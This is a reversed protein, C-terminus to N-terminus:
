YWKCKEKRRRRQFQNFQRM